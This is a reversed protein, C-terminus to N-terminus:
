SAEQAGHLRRSLTSAVALVILILGMWVVLNLGARVLTSPLDGVQGGIGIAGVLDVASLFSLLWPPSAPVTSSLTACFCGGTLSYYGAIFAFQILLALVCATAIQGRRM